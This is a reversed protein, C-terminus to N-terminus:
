LNGLKTELINRLKQNYKTGERRDTMFVQALKSVGTKRHTTKHKQTEHKQTLDDPRGHADRRGGGGAPRRREPGPSPAQLRVSPMRQRRGQVAARQEPRDDAPLVSASM